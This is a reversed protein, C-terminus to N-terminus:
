LYKEKWEKKLKYLRVSKDFKEVFVKESRGDVLITIVNRKTEDYSNTQKIFDCLKEFTSDLLVSDIEGSEALEYCQVPEIDNCLYYCIESAKDEVECFFVIKKTGKPIIPDILEVINEIDKM